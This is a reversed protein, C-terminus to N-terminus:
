LVLVVPPSGPFAQPYTRYNLLTVYRSIRRRQWLPRLVDDRDPPTRLPSFTSSSATSPTTTLTQARSLKGALSCQFPTESDCLGNLSQHWIFCASGRICTTRHRFAKTSRAPRRRSVELGGVDHEVIVVSTYCPGVSIFSGYWGYGRRSEVTVKRYGSVMIPWEQDSYTKMRSEMKARRDM